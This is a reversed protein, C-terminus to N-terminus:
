LMNFNIKNIAYILRRVDQVWVLLEAEAREDHEVEAM